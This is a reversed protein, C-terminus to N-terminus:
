DVKLLERAHGSRLSATASVRKQRATKALCRNMVVARSSLKAAGLLCSFGSQWAGSM